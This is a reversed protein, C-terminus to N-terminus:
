GRRSLFNITSNQVAKGGIEIGFIFYKLHDCIILKIFQFFGQRPDLVGPRRVSTVDAGMGQGCVYLESAVALPVTAPGSPVASASAMLMM